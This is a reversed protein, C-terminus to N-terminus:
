GSTARTARDHRGSSDHEADCLAWPHATTWLVSTRWACETKSAPDAGGARRPDRHRRGAGAGGARLRGMLALGLVVTV